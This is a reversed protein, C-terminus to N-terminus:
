KLTTQQKNQMLKRVMVSSAWRAFYVAATLYLIIFTVILCTILKHRRALNVWDQFTEPPKSEGEGQASQNLLQKMTDGAASMSKDFEGKLEPHGELHDGWVDDFEQPDDVNGSAAKGTMYLRLVDDKVECLTLAVELRKSAAAGQGLAAYARILGANNTRRLKRSGQEKYCENARQLARLSEEFRGALFLCRGYLQHADGQRQMSLFPLAFKMVMECTTLCRKDKPSLVGYAEALDLLKYQNEMINAAAKEADVIRAELQQRTVDQERADSNEAIWDDKLAKIALSDADAAPKGTLWALFSDM